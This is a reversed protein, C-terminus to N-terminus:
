FFGAPVSFFGSKGDGQGFEGWQRYNYEFTFSLFIM